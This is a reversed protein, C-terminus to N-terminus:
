VFRNHYKKRKKVYVDKLKIKEKKIKNGPYPFHSQDRFVVSSARGFNAALSFVISKLILLKKSKKEEKLYKNSFSEFLKTFKTNFKLQM